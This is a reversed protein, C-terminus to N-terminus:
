RMSFHKFPKLAEERFNESEQVALSFPLWLQFVWGPDYLQGKQSVDGTVQVSEVQLKLSSIFKWAAHQIDDSCKLAFYSGQVYRVSFESVKGFESSDGCIVWRQFLVEAVSSKHINQFLQSPFKFGSEFIHILVLLNEVKNFIGEM